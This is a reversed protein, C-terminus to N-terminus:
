APASPDPIAARRGSPDVEVVGWGGADAVVLLDGGVGALAAALADADWPPTVEDLRGWVEVRAGTARALARAADPDAPGVLVISRPGVAAAIGRARDQSFIAAHYASVAAAAVLVGLAYRMSRITVGSVQGDVVDNFGIVAATILAAIATIGAIGFLVVLYIRRTMNPVETGPDAEVARQISSWTRWWVPAGVALATLGALLTNRSTMGVDFGPTVAEIFAVLVTGLGTAAALLGIGAVLYEYVRRVETREERSEGLLTRHYWWIIGGAVLVAFQTTSTSFHTAADAGARDGLLWVLLRWLLQSAATLIAVLSGGVGVLLVYALWWTSRPLHFAGFLWYGTWVLAGIVLLSSGEALALTTGFRTAPLLLVDLATGLAMVLGVAAMVLGVLSGLLLHPARQSVDLTRRALWWHAGWLAGWAIAVGLGEADFRGALAESMVGQLATATVILAVLATITVYAVFLGSDTEEPDARHRRWTWWSLLAAFPGAVFVFALAQALASGPDEYERPVAGFARGLLEALGVALMVFLAFLLVYQFFRRVSQADVGGPARRRAAVVIIVVLGLPVALSLLSGLIQM